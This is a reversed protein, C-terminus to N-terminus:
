AVNRTSSWKGSSNLIIYNKILKEIIKEILKEILKKGPLRVRSLHYRVKLVIGFTGSEIGPNSM